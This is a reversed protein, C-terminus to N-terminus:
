GAYPRIGRGVFAGMLRKRLENAVKGHNLPLVRFRVRLTAAGSDLSEVGIIELPAMLLPGWTADREM